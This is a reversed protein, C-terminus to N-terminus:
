RLKAARNSAGLLSFPEDRPATPPIRITADEEREDRPAARAARLAASYAKAYSSALPYREEIPVSSGSRERIENTLRRAWEAAARDWVQESLGFPALLEARPRDKHADLRAAIEARQEMTLEAEPEATSM